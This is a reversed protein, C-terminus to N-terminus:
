QFGNHSLPLLIEHYYTANSQGSFFKFNIKNIKFIIKFKSKRGTWTNNCQCFCCYPRAMPHEHVSEVMEDYRHFCLFRTRILATDFHFSPRLIQCHSRIDKKTRRQTRPPLYSETHLLHTSIFDRGAMRAQLYKRAM